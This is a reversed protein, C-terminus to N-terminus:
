RWEMLFPIEDDMGSRGRPAAGQSDDRGIKASSRRAAPKPPTYNVPGISTTETDLSGARAKPEQMKGSLYKSGDSRQKTWVAFEILEGRWMGRGKMSPKNDGPEHAENPFLSFQGDRQEFAMTPEKTEMLRATGNRFCVLATAM